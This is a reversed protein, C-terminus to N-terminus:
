YYYCSSKNADPYQWFARHALLKGEDVERDVSPLDLLLHDIGCEVMYEVAEHHLYPPNTGSYNRAQKDTTNPLTRIVLSSVEGKELVEEIQTRFIM